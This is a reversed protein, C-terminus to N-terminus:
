FPQKLKQFGWYIGFVTDLKPHYKHVCMYGYIGECLNFCSSVASNTFIQSKTKRLATSTEALDCTSLFLSHCVNTHVTDINGSICYISVYVSLFLSSSGGEDIGDKEWCIDLYRLAKRYKRLAM